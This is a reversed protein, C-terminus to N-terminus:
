RDAGSRLWLDNMTRHSIQILRLVSLIFGHQFANAFAIVFTRKDHTTKLGVLENMRITFM